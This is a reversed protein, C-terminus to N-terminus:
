DLIIETTNAAKYVIPNGNSEVLYINKRNYESDVQVGRSITFQSAYGVNEGLRLHLYSITPELVFEAMNTDFYNGSCNSNLTAYTVYSSFTNSSCYAVLVNNNASILENSTCRPGLINYSSQMFNNYSSEADLQNYRSSYLYNNSCYTNFQNNDSGILLNNDCLALLQNNYSNGDFFNPRL